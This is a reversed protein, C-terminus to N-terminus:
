FNQIPMDYQGGNKTNLAHWLNTKGNSSTDNKINSSIFRVQGDAMLFMAGGVHLSALAPPVSEAHKGSSGRHRKQQGDATQKRGATAGRGGNIGSVLRLRAVGIM